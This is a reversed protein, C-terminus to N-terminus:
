KAQTILYASKVTKKASV